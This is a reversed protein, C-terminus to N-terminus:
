RKFSLSSSTAIIHKPLTQQRRRAALTPISLIARLQEVSTTWQKTALLRAFTHVCELMQSLTASSTDWVTCCYNLQLVIAKYLHLLVKDTRYFHRYIYIDLKQKAKSCTPSIYCNWKLNSCLTIVLSKICIPTSHIFVSHSPPSHKRSFVRGQNQINLM